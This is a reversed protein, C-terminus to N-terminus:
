GCRATALEPLASAYLQKAIARAEAIADSLFRASREPDGIVQGEALVCRIESFGMFQFELEALRLAHEWAPGFWPGTGDGTRNTGGSAVLIAARKGAMLGVCQGNRRDFTEGGRIVSDFWAKV